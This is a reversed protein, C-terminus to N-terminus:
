DLYRWELECRYDKQKKLPGAKTGRYLIRRRSVQRTVKPFLQQLEAHLWRDDRAEHAVALAGGARLVGHGQRLIERYFEADRGGPVPFACLDFEGEPLDASCVIQLRSSMDDGEDAVAAEAAAADARDVFWCVVRAETHHRLYERAFLGAALSKCLVRNGSLVNISDILHQEAAPVVPTQAADTKRPM